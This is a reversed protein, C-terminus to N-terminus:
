SLQWHLLFYRAPGSGPRLEKYPNILLNQYYQFQFHYSLKNSKIKKFCRRRSSIADAVWIDFSWIERLCIVVERRKIKKLKTSSNIPKRDFIFYKSIYLFLLILIWSWCMRKISSSSTKQRPKKLFSLRLSYLSDNSWLTKLDIFNM